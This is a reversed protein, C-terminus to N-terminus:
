NNTPKANNPSLPSHEATPAPQAPAKPNADKRNEESNLIHMASELGRLTALIVADAARDLSKDVEAWEEPSFRGLVHGTLSAKGGGGIGVRMRPFQETRLHQILSKMGNHGGASGGPRLRLRGCPLAVDDYIVLVQEPRLKYFLCCAAVARGSENMFTQPKLLFHEGARAVLADWKPQTSFATGWKAALRDVLMFGVNHRTEEYQRGPNGLGVLLRISLAPPPNEAM